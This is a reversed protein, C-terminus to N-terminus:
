DIDGALHLALWLEARVGPSDLDRGILEGAKRVRNRLTHRHVGLQSAAPDWQGNHALWGHVSRLLDGRTSEDHRRLPALLSDAFASAQGNPLLALLGGGALDAFRCCRQGTRQAARAAQDAQRAAGPIGALPAPDSVGAHVSPVRTSLEIVARQASGDSAALVVISGAHEAFFVPEDMTSEEGDLLEYAGALASNSGRLAVVRVPADPLRGCLVTLPERVAAIGHRLLLQCLSKRLGRLVGEHERERQLALTLLSAATNVLQREAGDLTSACGVALFGKAQTGLAYLVVEDGDLSLGASARGRRTRLRDIEARLSEAHASASPPEAHTPHGGADLLVVWAELLTALKRVVGAPGTGGVAATTLAQSGTSTRLLAAYEEMALAKSVAKGIAIFPTQMPVELLPLGASEAASVLASPVKKHSLGIGFGVGAIGLAALRKVYGVYGSRMGLGTTLLLEGGELFATPDTLETAHVWGISRDLHAQGALARLGLRDDRLLTRVTVPM